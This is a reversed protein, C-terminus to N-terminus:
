NIAAQYTLFLTMMATLTQLLSMNGLTRYKFNAPIDIQDGPEIIKINDEGGNSTDNRVTIKRDDNVLKIDNM